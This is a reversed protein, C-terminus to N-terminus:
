VLMLRPPKFIPDPSGAQSSESLSAVSQHSLSQTFTTMISPLYAGVTFLGMCHPCHHSSSEEHATPNSVVSATEDHCPMSGSDHQDMEVSSHMSHSNTQSSVSKYLCAAQCFDNLSVAMAQLPLALVLMILIIQRSIKKM